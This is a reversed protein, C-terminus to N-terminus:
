DRARECFTISGAADDFRDVMFQRALGRPMGGPEIDIRPEREVIDTGRIDARVTRRSVSDGIRDLRAERMRVDISVLRKIRDFRCAYIRVHDIRLTRPQATREVFYARFEELLVPARDV